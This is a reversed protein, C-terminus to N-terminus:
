EWYVWSNLEEVTVWVPLSVECWRVLLTRSVYRCCPATTLTTPVLVGRWRQSPWTAGLSLPSTASSMPASRRSSTRAPTSSAGTSKTTPARVPGVTTSTPCGLATRRRASTSPLARPGAPTSSWACTRSTLPKEQPPSSVRSFSEFSLFFHFPSCQIEREPSADGVMIWFSSCTWCCWFYRKWDLVTGWLFFLTFSSFASTSPLSFLYIFLGVLKQAFACMESAAIREWLLHCVVDSLHTAQTYKLGPGLWDHCKIINRGFVHM